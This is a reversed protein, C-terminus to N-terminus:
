IKKKLLALTNLFVVVKRLMGRIIRFLDMTSPINFEAPGFQVYKELIFSVIKLIDDEFMNTWM